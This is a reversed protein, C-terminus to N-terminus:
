PAANRDVIDGLHTVFVINQRDINDLIWQMEAAFIEPAGASYAQTDPLAVISFAGEPLPPFEAHAAGAAFILVALVPSTIRQSRLFRM